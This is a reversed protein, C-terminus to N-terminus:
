QFNGKQEEGESKSLIPDGKASTEASAVHCPGLILHEKHTKPATVFNQWHIDKLCLWHKRPVVQLLLPKPNSRQMAAMMWIKEWQREGHPRASCFNINGGAAKVSSPKASTAPLTSIVCQQQYCVVAKAAAPCCECLVLARWSEVRVLLSPFPLIKPHSGALLASGFQGFPFEYQLNIGNWFSLPHLLLPYKNSCHKGQSAVVRHVSTRSGLFYSSMM